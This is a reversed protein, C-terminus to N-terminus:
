FSCACFSKQLNRTCVGEYYVKVGEYSYLYFTQETLSSLIDSQESLLTQYETQLVTQLICFSKSHLSIFFDSSINLRWGFFIKHLSWLASWYIWDFLLKPIWQKLILKSVLNFARCGPVFFFGTHTHTHLIYPNKKPPNKQPPSM